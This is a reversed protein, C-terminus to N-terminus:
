TYKALFELQRTRYLQKDPDMYFIASVAAQSRVPGLTTAPLGRSGNQGGEPGMPGSQVGEPGRIGHKGGEPVRVDEAPRATSSDHM